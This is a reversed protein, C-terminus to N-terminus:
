TKKNKKYEQHFFPLNSKELKSKKKQPIIENNDKM